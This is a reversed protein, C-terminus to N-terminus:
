TATTPPESHPRFMPRPLIPQVWSLTMATSISNSHNEGFRQVYQLGFDFTFDSVHAENRRKSYFLTPDEFEAASSKDTNGFLYRANVGVSLRKFLEFSNGWVLQNVGGSGEFYFLTKGFDPNEEM